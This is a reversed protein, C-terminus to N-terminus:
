KEKLINLIDSVITNYKDLNNWCEAITESEANAKNYLYECVKNQVITDNSFKDVSNEFMIRKLWVKTNNLQREREHNYSDFMHRISDALKERKKTLENYTGTETEDFKNYYEEAFTDFDICPYKKRIDNCRSEYGEIYDIRRLCM